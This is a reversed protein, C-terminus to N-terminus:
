GIVRFGAWAWVCFHAVIYLIAALILAKQWRSTKARTVADEFADAAENM